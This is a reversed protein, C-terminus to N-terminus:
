CCINIYYIWGHNNCNRFRVYTFYMITSKKKFIKENELKWLIKKVYKLIVVESDLKYMSESTM